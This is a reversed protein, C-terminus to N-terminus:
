RLHLDNCSTYANDCVPPPVESTLVLGQLIIVVSPHWLFHWSFYWSYYWSFAMSFVMFFTMFFAMCLAMFRQLNYSLLVLEEVMLVM